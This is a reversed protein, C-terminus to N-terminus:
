PGTPVGLGAVALPNASLPDSISLSIRGELADLLPKGASKAEGAKCCRHCSSRRAATRTGPSWRAYSRAAAWSSPTSKM